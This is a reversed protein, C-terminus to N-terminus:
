DEENVRVTSLKGGASGFIDTLARATEKENHSKDQAKPTIMFNEPTMNLDSIMKPLIGLCPHPKYETAVVNGKKDTKMSKIVTGDRMIDEQMMELIHLSNGIIVSSIDNFAASDKPSNIVQHVAKIINLMEAVDLCDSGAKTAGEAVLDCPYKNCTSKCPKIRNVFSAAHRGHKWANRNGETTPKPQRGANKRQQIAAPSMTYRRKVRMESPIGIEDAQTTESEEQDM